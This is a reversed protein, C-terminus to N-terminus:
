LHANQLLTYKERERQVFIHKVGKGLFFVNQSMVCPNFLFFKNVDKKLNTPIPTHVYYVYFITKPM